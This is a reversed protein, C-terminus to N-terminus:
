QPNSPIRRNKGRATYRPPPVRIMLGRSCAVLADRSHAAFCGVASPLSCEVRQSLRFRDGHFSLWDIGTGSVAVVMNTGAHSAAVYGGPTTAVRSALLQVTHEDVHFEAAHVAGNRDLGVLELVPPAHRCSIPVSQLSHPGAEAPLWRCGTPYLRDDAPDLVVWHTQDHTLVTVKRRAQGARPAWPWCCAARRRPHIM